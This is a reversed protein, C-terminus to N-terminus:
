KENGTDEQDISFESALRYVQKRDIDLTSSLLSAVQAASMANTSRLAAVLDDLPSKVKPAQDKAGQVLLTIEGKTVGKYRRVLEPLTGSDFTEHIKTLERVVVAKRPGLGDRLNKLTALIRKPSEYFVLTGPETRLEELLKALAGKKRPLFGMFLFRDTPLGSAALASIAACAGPIPVVSFGEHRVTAVLAQGPDSIAPTGADSVLAVDKGQYLYKMIQMSASSHNMERYSILESSIGHHSLLKRTHRTDEAAICAVSSLIDLARLSIDKLNGIPTAVLYLIGLTNESSPTMELGTHVPESM